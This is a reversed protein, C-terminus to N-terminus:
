QLLNYSIEQGNGLTIQKDWVSVCVTIGKDVAYPGFKQVPRRAPPVEETDPQTGNTDSVPLQDAPPPADTEPAGNPADPRKATRNRNTTAM